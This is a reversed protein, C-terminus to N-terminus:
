IDIQSQNTIKLPFKEFSSDSPKKWGVAIGDGGGGEQFRAQLQYSNGQNLSITGTHNRVDGDFGHGGYFTAVANGNILLDSADDSDVGFEYTGSEPAIFNIRMRWSYNDKNVGDFYSPYGNVSGFGANQNSNGFYIHPRNHVRAKVFNSDTYYSDLSQKDSARGGPEYLEAKVFNRTKQTRNSRQNYLQTIESQSLARNYVRVDSMQGDFLRGGNEFNGLYVSRDAGVISVGWIAETEKVGNIYLRATSGDYTGVVHVWTNVVTSVSSEVTHLSGDYYSFQWNGNQHNRLNLRYSGEIDPVNVGWQQDAASGTDKLTNLNMWACLSLTDNQIEPITSNVTDGTFGFSEGIPSTYDQTVGDQITGHNDYASRDRIKGSDIDESNMTWHGVLGKQLDSITAM